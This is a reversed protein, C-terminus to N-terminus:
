GAHGRSTGGGNGLHGLFLDDPNQGVSAETFNHLREDSGVDASDDNTVFRLDHADDRFAIHHVRQACATVEFGHRRHIDGMRVEDPAIDCGRNGLNSGFHHFLIDTVDQDLLVTMQYADDRSTVQKPHVRSRVDFDLSPV